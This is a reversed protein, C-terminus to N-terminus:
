QRRMKGMLFKTALGAAAAMVMKNGLMRQLLSPNQQGIQAAARNFAEPHNRRMWDALAAVQSEDMQNPNTTRLGPIQNLLGGGGGGMGGGGGGGLLGGLLGGGGGGGLLGGLGGGGGGGGSGGGLLGGLLGQAGGDSAQGNAPAAAGSQNLSGLLTSAITSLGGQGVGGLPNTGGVGPTVHDAFDQPDTQQSAHSIAAHLDNPDAHGLMQGFRDHDPSSPDHFNGQGNAMRELEPKGGLMGSLDDLLGM